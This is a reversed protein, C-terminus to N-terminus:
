PKAEMAKRVEAAFVPLPADRYPTVIPMVGAFWDAGRLLMPEATEPFGPRVTVSADVALPHHILARLLRRDLPCDLVSGQAESLSASKRVVKTGDCEDCEAEHENGCSLCECEIKGSEGCEMCPALTVGFPRTWKRLAPLPLTETAPAAAYEEVKSVWIGREKAPGGRVALFSHGNTIATWAEGGITLSSPERPVASGNTGLDYTLIWDHM